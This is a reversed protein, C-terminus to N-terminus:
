WGGGWMFGLQKDPNSYAYGSFDGGGTSQNAAKEIAETNKDLADIHAKNKESEWQGERGEDKFMTGSVYKGAAEILGGGPINLFGLGKGAPEALRAAEVWTQGYDGHRADPKFRDMKGTEENIADVALMERKKKTSWVNAADDAVQIAAFTAGAAVVGTGLTPVAISVGAVAVGIDAAVIAADKMVNMVDLSHVQVQKWLSVSQGTKDEVQRIMERTDKWNGYTDMGLDAINLGM